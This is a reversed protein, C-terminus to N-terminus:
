SRRCRGRCGIVGQHVSSIGSISTVRRAGTGDVGDRRPEHQTGHNVVHVMMEWLLFEQTQGTRETNQTCGGKM